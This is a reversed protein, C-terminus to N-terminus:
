NAYRITNVPNLKNELINALRKRSRHLNVKIAGETKDTIQAIEKISLEQFYHLTLLVGDDGAMSDLASKIQENREKRALIGFGDELSSLSRVDEIEIDGSSIQRQNRKIYDLSRHYAIKYLWTSFKSEAKFKSLGNFAKLFTDQAVEEADERNKLMKKALTFVMHKYRDILVTYVQSKGELIQQVYYEDPFTGM